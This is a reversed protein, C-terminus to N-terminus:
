AEGRGVAAVQPEGVPEAAKLRALLTAALLNANTALGKVKSKFVNFAVVAPIAVLLGVATAILAEAIGGMVADSAASMNGVLDRFARIIGLVTGFLGIFPANSAVTALFPLRKEFRAQEVRAAGALLQEVSEPGLEHSKLGHLVVNTELSDHKALLRAAGDFDGRDLNATLEDGLARIDVAHRRYFIFREIMVGISIVSLGILLWLVWESEFIPLGLLKNVLGHENAM